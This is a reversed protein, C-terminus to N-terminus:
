SRGDETDKEFHLEEQTQLEGVPATQAPNELGLPFEAETSTEISPLDALCKLGHDTLFTKTTALLAPRGPTERYGVTEIWGREELQRIIAPNVAVGRIAEIDGRTVPQRYAIVALTELAARSFRQPKDVALRALYSGLAEATRFRWAGGPLEELVLGRELWEARLAELHQKITKASLADDFLKRLTRPELPTRSALLAAEIVHEPKLM